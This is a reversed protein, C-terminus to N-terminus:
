KQTTPPPSQLAAIQVLAAAAQGLDLSLANTNGSEYDQRATNVASVAISEYQLVRALTAPPLAKTKELGQTVLVAADLANQEASIQNSISAATNVQSCAAVSFIIGVGLLVWPALRHPSIKM